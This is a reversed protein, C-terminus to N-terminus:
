RVMVWVNAQWIELFDDFAVQSIGPTFQTSDRQSWISNIVDCNWAACTHGDTERYFAFSNNSVSCSSNTALDIGWAQSDRRNSILSEEYLYFQGWYKNAGNDYTYYSSHEICTESWSDLEEFARTRDFGNPTYFGFYKNTDGNIWLAVEWFLIDSANISYDINPNLSSPTVGINWDLLASPAYNGDTTAALTWGWGDTEMDCYVRIKQNGTPNIVYQKSGTSRWMELIRKCSQNTILSWFVDSTSEITETQSKFARITRTTNTIIDYEWAAIIDSDFHLPTNSDQNLLIGIPAWITYPSLFSYDSIEAYTSQFLSLNQPESLFSMLQFDKRNDALMYIPFTDYKPDKWGWQYWILSIIDSDLNGQYSYVWGNATVDISDGPIPLRSSISYLELWERIDNIQAIRNTDRSSDIYWTYSLFGTTALIAVITTVVIMEVLTFAQKQINM